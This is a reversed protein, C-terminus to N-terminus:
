NRGLGYVEGFRDFTRDADRAVLEVVYEYGVEYVAFNGDFVGEYGDSDPAVDFVYNGGRDRAYEM